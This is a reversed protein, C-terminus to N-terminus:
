VEEAADLMEKMCGLNQGIVDPCFRDIDNALVTLDAPLNKFVITVADSAAESVEIGYMSDWEQLHAIIADTDLDFNAANTGAERLAQYKDMPSGESYGLVCSEHPVQSARPLM